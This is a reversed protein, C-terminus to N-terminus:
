PAASDAAVLAALQGSAHLEVVASFGGVYQGRVLVIPFSRAGYSRYHAEQAEKDEAVIVEFDIRADRLLQEVQKCLMCGPREIVTVRSM